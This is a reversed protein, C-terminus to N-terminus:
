GVEQRPPRISRRARSEIVKEFVLKDMYDHLVGYAEDFSPMPNVEERRAWYRMAGLAQGISSPTYRPRDPQDTKLFIVWEALKRDDLFALDAQFRQSECWATFHRRWMTYKRLTEKGPAKTGRRGGVALYDRGGAASDYSAM